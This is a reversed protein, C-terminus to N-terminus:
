TKINKNSKAEAYPLIKEMGLQFEMLKRREPLFKYVGQLRDMISLIEKTKEIILTVDDKGIKAIKLFTKAKDNETM